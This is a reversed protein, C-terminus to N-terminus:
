YEWIGQAKLEKILKNHESLSNRYYFKHYKDTVFYTAAFNPEPNLAANIADFSPSCVPGPPLGPYKNTDYKGSGYPYSATPTSGLFKPQDKWNLRNYFVAAVKKMEDPRGNAEKEIISAMTIIEHMSYGMKDAKTYMDDTIKTDLESLLKELVRKPTSGKYFKYTDPFLYGEFRYYVKEIPIQKVFPYPFSANKIEKKLESESAIVGSEVLAKTIEDVTSGEKFRLTVEDRLDRIKNLESVIGSYGMGPEFTHVGPKFSGGEKSLKLYIKFIFPYRIAGADKLMEPIDATNTKETIVLETTEKGKMLGLVDSFAAILGFALSVSIIGIIAVWIFSTLCGSRKKKMKAQKPPAKRVTGNEDPEIVFISSKPKPEDVPESVEQAVPIDAQIPEPQSEGKIENLISDIDSQTNEDREDM